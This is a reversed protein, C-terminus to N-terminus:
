CSTRPSVTQHTLVFEDALVAADSLNAVKQEILHVVINEPISSKFDELLLLEQLQDLTMIGSSLCWKEFLTKKERAFEVYTQKATKLHSRFKQRYAEPM